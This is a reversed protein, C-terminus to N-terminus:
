NLRIPYLTAFIMLLNGTTWFEMNILFSRCSLALTYDNMHYFIPLVALQFLHKNIQM